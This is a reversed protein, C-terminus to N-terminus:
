SGRLIAARTKLRPGRKLASALATVAARRDPKPAQVAGRWHQVFSSVEENPVNVSGITGGKSDLVNFVTLAKGVSKKQLTFKMM